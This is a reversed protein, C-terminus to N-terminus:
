GLVKVGAEPGLSTKLVEVGVDGAEEFGSCGAVVAESCAENLVAAQSKHQQLPRLFEVEAVACAWFCVGESVECIFM